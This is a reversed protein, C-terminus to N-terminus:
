ATIQENQPFMHKYLYGSIGIIIALITMEQMHHNEPQILSLISLVFLFKFGLRHFRLIERLIYFNITPVVLGLLLSIDLTGFSFAVLLKKCTIFLLAAALLLNIVMYKKRHQLTASNNIFFLVKHQEETNKYMKWIENKNKGQLLSREIEKETTEAM